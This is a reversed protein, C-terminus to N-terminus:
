LGRQEASLRPKPQISKRFGSASGGTVSLIGSVAFFQKQEIEPM